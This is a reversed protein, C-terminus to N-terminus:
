PAVLEIEPSEENAERKAAAIRELNRAVRADPRAPDFPVCLRRLGSAVCEEARRESLPLLGSRLTVAIGREAAYRVMDFLRPHLLPEVPGELRLATLSPFRDIQRCFADFSILKPPRGRATVTARKCGTDCLDVPAIRTTAPRLIPDPIPEALNMPPKRGQM